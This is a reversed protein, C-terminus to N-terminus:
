LLVTLDLQGSMGHTHGPEGNLLEVRSSLSLWGFVQGVEIGGHRSQGNREDSLNGM